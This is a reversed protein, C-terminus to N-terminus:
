GKPDTGDANADDGYEHGPEDDSTAVDVRPSAGGHPTLRERVRIAHVGETADDVVMADGPREPMRAEFDDGVYTPRTERFAALDARGTLRHMVVLDSQSVAVDPLASPRQTACVLSVGPARGRTLLRRLASAAVGEFAVHAEDVFLWPLRDVTGDLRGRYCRSAVALCVANTAADPLGSCDLVTAKPGALDPTAGDFVDWSRALALHNEAAVRVADPADQEGVADVMGALTTTESAVRWVLAGVAGTPDLGLLSCWARPDLADAGVRPEVVRAPVEDPADALTDFAGMPDVLIPAVGDTRAAEEALVGLTYSKGSGRKGVVLAAHPGGLDVGVEEGPSGDRARYAGLHGVPGLGDTSGLVHM